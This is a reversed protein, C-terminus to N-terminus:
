GLRVSLDIYCGKMSYLRIVHDTQKLRAIDALGIITM